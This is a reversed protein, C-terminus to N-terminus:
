FSGGRSSMWAIGPLETIGEAGAVALGQSALADLSSLVVYRPVWRPHYKANFRWLSEIQTRESARSLVARGVRGLTGQREGALVGRMVAFNLGLGGGTTEAVHRITELVLFDMVGNPLAVATNRRMVDLSLGDIAPAPVWQIFAQADGSGDQAIALLLNTDHPDFLRSLTMSFGREVEGRRGADAIDLLQQKQADALLLPDAFTVTFGARLLRQRAQRLGRMPRGELSFASCDVIAEDGLYLPRLGSGEYVALWEEAAGLVTVSWGSREAYAMFDAWVQERELVPGIPDPSVLCVGSRVAHAVVSSGAFFWQKDDRLAFYDLTGGGYHNVVARAREREAHHEEGTLPTPGHPSLLLWLVTGLLGLGMAILVPAVYHSTFDLPVVWHGRVHRIAIEHPPHPSRRGVTAALGIAIVLTVVTGGAAVVLARVAAARSARVPFADRHASLWAAGAAALVAEEIDIGKVLHLGVSVLLLLLAATWAIRHGRRLGRATLLLAFSVFVLTVRATRPVLFPVVQILDQLRSGLPRSAASLLGIVGLAAVGYAALRRSRDRRRWLDRWDASM